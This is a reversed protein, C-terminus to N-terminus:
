LALKQYVTKRQGNISSIFAASLPAPFLACMNKETDAHKINMAGGPNCLVLSQYDEVM